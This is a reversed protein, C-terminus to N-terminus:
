ANQSPFCHFPVYYGCWTFNRIEIDWVRLCARIRGMCLFNLSVKNTKLIMTRFFSITYFRNKSNYQIFM